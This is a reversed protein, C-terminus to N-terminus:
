RKRARRATGAGGSTRGHRRGSAPSPAAALRSLFRRAEDLESLTSVFRPMDQQSRTASPAPGIHCLAGRLSPCEDMLGSLADLALPEAHDVLADLTSLAQWPAGAAGCARLRAAAAALGRGDDPDANSIARDALTAAIEAAPTTLHHTVRHWALRFLGDAPRQRLVALALAMAGAADRRPPGEEITLWVGLSCSSMVAHLAEIPRLRRQQFSCGAVLVNALYALEESRQSFREPDETALQRMAPGLVPEAAARAADSAPGLLRRVPAPQLLEAQALLRRLGDREGRSTAHAATASHDARGPASGRVLRRFYARTMPDHRDYSPELNRRALELFSSAAPPAVYGQEARRDERDGALDGELMDASSLVELLGGNDDIHEADMASCRELIRCVLDHHDRDLALLTALITDGGDTTRAMLQYAGLEEYAFSELAKDLQRAEVEDAAQMEAALSELELVLVHRHVALTVLDEPLESVRRALLWDGAELMVELWVLFRAADFREEEGPRESGWLDDDFLQALQETTALAVLEGADELGVEAVLRGLVAPALRQVQAPLEPQDLIRALLSTASRRALRQPQEPM